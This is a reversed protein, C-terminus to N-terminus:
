GSANRSITMLTPWGRAAAGDVTATPLVAGASEPVCGGLALAPWGGPPSPLVAPPVAVVPGVGPAPVVAPRGGPLPAVPPAVVPPPAVAPPPAVVPPPAVSSVTCILRVVGVLPPVAALLGPLGGTLAPVVGPGAGAAEVLMTRRLSTARTSI